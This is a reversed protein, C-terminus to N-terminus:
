TVKRKRPQNKGSKWVASHRQAGPLLILSALTKKNNAAGSLDSAYIPSSNIDSRERPTFAFFTWVAWPSLVTAIV